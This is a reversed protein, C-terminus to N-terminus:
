KTKVFYHVSNTNTEAIEAAFTSFNKKILDRILEKTFQETEFHGGDVLLIDGDPEFFEHYKMDASLFADAQASKADGLLFSGAGGCLAVRKIMGGTLASHRLCPTGITESVLDLFDMEPMENEFEGIMGSGVLPSDNQLQYVDYAVEEYPHVKLMASIVRNLLHDPVITEIRVEDEFHLEGQEGVFPHAEEGARFSGLGAANFSCSDYNGICGAGAEFIASRVKEAYDAPSFVVLKMLRGNMPQLVHLNKLGLMEGLRCNVGLYSNDLNTHMSIITIDNKIAKMVAREIPSKPTLRKLGKFILPHHSVILNCSKAIAEDVLAETVDLAILAKSVEANEDGVQLGANDYNEQWSLPAVRTLCSLIEKVTM